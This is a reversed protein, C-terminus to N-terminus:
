EIISEFSEFNQMNCQQIKRNSVKYLLVILIVNLVVFVPLFFVVADLYYILGGTGSLYIATLISSVFRANTSPLDLLSKYNFYPFTCSAVLYMMSVTPVSVVVVVFLLLFNTKFIILSIILFLLAFPAMFVNLGIMKAFLIETAKLPSLKLISFNEGEADIGFRDILNAASLMIGYIALLVGVYTTNFNFGGVFLNTFYFTSLILGYGALIIFIRHGWHYQKDRLLVMLDKTLLIRVKNPLFTLRGVLNKSQHVKTSVQETDKVQHYQLILSIPNIANLDQTFKRLLWALCLGSVMLAGLIFLPTGYTGKGIDEVSKVLQYHPLIDWTLCQYINQVVTSQLINDIAQNLEESLFYHKFPNILFVILVLSLLTLVLKFFLYGYAKKGQLKKKMLNMLFYLRIIFSVVILMFLGLACYLITMFKIGLLFHASLLFLGIFTMTKKLIYRETLKSSLLIEPKIPASTLLLYEKSNLFKLVTTQLDEFTHNIFVILLLISLYATKETKSSTDLVSLFFEILYTFIFGALVIGVALLLVLLLSVLVKSKNKNNSSNSFIVRNFSLNFYNHILYLGNKM